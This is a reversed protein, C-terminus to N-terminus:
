VLDDVDFQLVIIKRGGMETEKLMFISLVDFELLAEEDVLPEGVFGVGRWVVRFDARVNDRRSRAIIVENETNSPLVFLVADTKACYVVKGRPGTPTPYILPLPAFGWRGGDGDGDPPCHYHVWSEQGTTSERNLVHIGGHVDVHQAEQNMIGSNRPIDKVQLRTDQSDLGSPTTVLERRSSHWTTGSNTAYAHYLGENNEPGNPGAQAKHATSTHDNAGEYDIFHRNTWTVHLTNTGQHFSLGNPYPNCKTGILYTGLPVSHATKSDYRYLIDSGAGAKGIRCEFFLENGAPLFRPYTVNVLDASQGPLHSLIPGFNEPKWSTPSTDHALGQRSVRYKLTDCHHDFAIHITGDGACIGISIANHGDDTTQQYDEFTLCQWPSTPKTIDHRALTVQRPGLSLKSTYFGAYQHGSFTTIASQQFSCANLRHTTNPDDGLIYTTPTVM